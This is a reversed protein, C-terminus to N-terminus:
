PHLGMRVDRGHPNWNMNNAFADVPRSPDLSHTRNSGQDSNEHGLSDIVTFDLPLARRIRSVSRFSLVLGANRSGLKDNGADGPRVIRNALPPNRFQDVDPPNVERRGNCAQAIDISSAQWAFVSHNCHDIQQLRSVSSVKQELQDLLIQRLTELRSFQIKTTDFLARLFTQRLKHRGPADCQAHRQHRDAIGSRLGSSGQVWAILVNTFPRM